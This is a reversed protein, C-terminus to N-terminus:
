VAVQKCALIENNLKEAAIRAAEAFDPGSSAEIIGRSSNILFMSTGVAKITAALDGGQPGIGPILLPLNPALQVIETIKHPNTAGAVLGCNGNKDWTSEVVRAVDHYLDGGGEETHLIALNQFQSAGPNSTACLVFNLKEERELFPRMAESGMYNHLTIADANLVDFAYHATGENTSGIDGAKRDLILLAHPANELVYKCTQELAELGKAGYREYFCFNPKYAAAVHKTADVIKRNYEYMALGPSDGYVLGQPLKNPDLGICLHKNKGQLVCLIDFAHRNKM